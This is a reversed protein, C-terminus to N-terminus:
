DNLLEGVIRKAIEISIDRLDYYTHYMFPKSVAGYTFQFRNLHEDYYVWGGDLTKHESPVNYEWDGPEPHPNNEGVIGTGYEVFKAYESEVGFTGKNKRQKSFISNELSGTVGQISQKKMNESILKKGEVLLEHTILEPLDKTRKELEKFERELLDLGKATLNVKIKKVM